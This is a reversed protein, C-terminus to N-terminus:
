NSRATFQMIFSYTSTKLLLITTGSKFFGAVLGTTDPINFDV